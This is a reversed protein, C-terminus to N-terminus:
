RADEDVDPLVDELAERRGEGSGVQLRAGASGGEFIQLVIMPRRRQVELVRLVEDRNSEILAAFEAADLEIARGNPLHFLGM